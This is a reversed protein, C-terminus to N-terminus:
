WSINKINSKFKQWAQNLQLVATAVFSNGHSKNYYQKQVESKEKRLHNEIKELKSGTVTQDSRAKNMEAATNKWNTECKNLKSLKKGYDKLSKSYEKYGLSVDKIDNAMEIQVEITREVHILHDKLTAIDKQNIM